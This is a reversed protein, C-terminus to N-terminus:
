VIRVVAYVPVESLCFSLQRASGDFTHSVPQPEQGPAYLLVGQPAQEMHLAFELGSAPAEAPSVLHLTQAGSPLRFHSLRLDGERVAVRLEPEGMAFRLAENLLTHDGVDPVYAARGRGLAVQAPKDTGDFCDSLLATQRQRGWADRSGTTGTILLGGGSEAYQKLHAAVVDSLCDAEAVVVCAFASLDDLQEPVLLAFPLHRDTLVREVETLGSRPAADNLMLSATDCYVGIPTVAKAGNVLADRHQRRFDILSPDGGDTHLPGHPQLAMMEIRAVPSEEPSPPLCATVGFTRARLVAHLSEARSLGKVSAHFAAVDLYPLLEALNIGVARAESESTCLVDAAVGCEAHQREVAKSLRALFRSLTHTKFWQWEQEHPAVFQAPLGTPTSRYLPPRLHNFTHHGFRELGAARSEEAQPGYLERLRERFATVCLPCRCTDPEPNYAMHQLVLLDARSEAAQVCIKEIYRQYAESHFCPRVRVGPTAGAVACPQGDANVQLWNHAEPEETLLTEPIVTGATIRLAVRLDREHARQVLDSAREMTEREFAVGYGRYFPLSVLTVGSGRLADLREDTYAAKIEEEWGVAPSGEYRIDYPPEPVLSVVLETQILWDPRPKLALAM